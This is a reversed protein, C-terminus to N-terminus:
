RSPGVAARNWPGRFAELSYFEFLEREYEELSIDDRRVPSPEVPNRFPPDDTELLDAIRQGVREAGPKGSEVKPQNEGMVRVLEAYPGEPHAWDVTSIMAAEYDTDKYWGPEVVCVRIGAHASELRMGLSMGEVGYKSASYAVEWFATRIGADSSVNVIWGAGQSRMIPEVALCMRYMGVLNTELQEKFRTVSITPWPGHVGFGAVNVLADIRGTADLVRRVGDAVSADDTVDLRVCEISGGKARAAESLSAARAEFGGFSGRFAGFVRWGRRSLELSTLRGFGASAGTVLAVRGSRDM